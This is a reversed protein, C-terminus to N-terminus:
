LDIFDSVQSDPLNSGLCNFYGAQIGLGLGIKFYVGDEMTEAPINRSADAGFMQDIISGYIFYGLVLVGVSVNFSLM